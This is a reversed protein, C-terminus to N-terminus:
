EGTVTAHAAEHGGMRFESPSQGVRQKFYKGFFSQNAFNLDCSIEQVTRSSSQLMVKAALIVFNDIWDSATRGSVAKVVTTLHKPTIFMRDAYFKVSRSQRFNQEVLTVFNYFIDENHSRRSAVYNYHEKYISLVEYLMSQLLGQIVNRRYEGREQKIRKWLFTHFDHLSETEADSLSIVPMSKFSMIMPLVSHLDPLMEQAFQKRIAVFIGKFDPSSSYGHLIHDPMFTVLSHAPVHYEALNLKVTAHGHLCVAFVPMDLMVPSENIKVGNIDDFIFVENDLDDKNAVADINGTRIISDKLEASM